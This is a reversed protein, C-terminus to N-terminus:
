LTVFTFLSKQGVRGQGTVDLSMALISRGIITWDTALSELLNDIQLLVDVNVADISDVRTWM